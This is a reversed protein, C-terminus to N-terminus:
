GGQIDEVNVSQSYGEGKEQEVCLSFVVVLFHQGVECFLLVIFKDGGLEVPSKIRMFLGKIDGFDSKLVKNGRRFGTVVEEKM